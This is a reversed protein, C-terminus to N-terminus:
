FCIFLFIPVQIISEDQLYQAGTIVRTTILFIFYIQYAILDCTTSEILRIYYICDNVFLEIDKVHTSKNLSSSCNRSATYIIRKKKVKVGFDARCKHWHVWAHFCCIDPWILWSNLVITMKYSRICIKALNFHHHQTECLDRFDLYKFWDAVCTDVLQWTLM